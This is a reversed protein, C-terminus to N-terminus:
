SAYLNFRHAHDSQQRLEHISALNSCATTPAAAATPRPDHSHDGACCTCRKHPLSPISVGRTEQQYVSVNHYCFHLFICGGRLRCTCDLAQAPM